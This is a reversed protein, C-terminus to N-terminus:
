GDRSIATQEGNHLRSRNKFSRIKTRVNFLQKLYNPSDFILLYHEFMIPHLALM